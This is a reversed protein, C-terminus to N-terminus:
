YSIVKLSFKWNFTSSLSVIFRLHCRFHLVLFVFCVEGGLAPLPPPLINSYWPIQWINKELKLATLIKKRLKKATKWPKQPFKKGTILARRFFKMLDRSLSESVEFLIEIDSSVFIPWKDRKSIQILVLLYLLIIVWCLQKSLASCISKFCVHIYCCYFCYIKM